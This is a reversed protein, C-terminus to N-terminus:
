KNYRGILKAFAETSSIISYNADEQVTELLNKLLKNEDASIGVVRGSKKAPSTKAAKPAPVLGQQVKAAAPAPKINIIKANDVTKEFSKKLQEVQKAAENAKFPKNISQTM